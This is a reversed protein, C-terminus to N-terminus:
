HKNNILDYLANVMVKKGEDTLLVKDPMLYDENYFDLVKVNTNTFTYTNDTINCIIIEHGDLLEVISNYQEQSLSYIKDFLLIVRQDLTNNEKQTKLENYLEEYTEVPTTKFTYDKFKENIEDFASTLAIDGYFTIKNRQEEQKKNIDEEQQKKYKEKYVEFVKDFVIQAYLKAGTREKPHVGDKYIWDPHENAAKDWDIIHINPYDKAFAEFKQNFTPDDGNHANIWFIERDGFMEIFEKVRKTSFTGNTSLGLIVTNSLKGSSKLDSVLSKSSIISRSVKGDFYGKPFQKYLQPAGMLLVSDGIGTVPLNKVIEKIKEDDYKDSEAIEQIVKEENKVNEEYEKNKEEIIKANEEIKEKMENIEQTYDKATIFRYVGFISFGVLIITFFIKIFGKKHRDFIYDLIWSLIITIVVAIIVKYIYDINLFGVCFIVPFQILYVEYTISAGTILIEDINSSHKEKVLSHDLLRMTLFCTFLMAFPMLKSTSDIFIFMLAMCSIYSLFKLNNTRQLFPKFYYHSFGLLMGLTLAFLRTHISYYAQMLNGDLVGKYFFYFSFGSIILLLICPISKHIKEGIKKLLIFVLPFILSFQMYLAMYWLHTFPSVAKKAFYDFNVNLQWINNYGGLISAVEPKINTWFVDPLLSIVGISCFVVIILPLYVKVFVGTYYKFFNFDEKYLAGVVSLYGALVFFACVALFGGKLLGLHYFFVGLCAIIRIIDIKYYHKNRM